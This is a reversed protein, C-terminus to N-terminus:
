ACSNSPAAAHWAASSTHVVRQVICWCLLLLVVPLRAAAAGAAASASAAATATHVASQVSAAEAAGAYQSHVTAAAYNITDASSISISFSNITIAKSCRVNLVEM